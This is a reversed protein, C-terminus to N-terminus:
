PSIKLHKLVEQPFDKVTEFYLNTWPLLMLETKGTRYRNKYSKEFEFFLSPHTEYCRDLKNGVFIRIRWNKFNALNIISTNLGLGPVKNAWELKEGASLFPGERLHIYLVREKRDIVVLQNDLKRVEFPLSGPRLWRRLSKSCM